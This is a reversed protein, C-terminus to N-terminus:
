PASCIKGCGAQSVQTRLTQAHPRLDAPLMPELEQAAAVIQQRQAASLGIAFEGADGALLEMVRQRRAPGMSADAATQLLGMVQQAVGDRVQRVAQMKTPNSPDVQGELFPLHKAACHASFLLPTFLQDLHKEVNTAMLQQQAMGTTGTTGAMLYAGVVNATKGCLQEFSQFGEIPLADTGLAQLARGSQEEFAQVAPDTAAPMEGKEGPKGTKAALADAADAFSQPLAPANSQGNSGSRDCAAAFLLITACICSAFARHRM